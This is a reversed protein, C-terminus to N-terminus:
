LNSNKKNKMTCHIDKTKTVNRTVDLTDTEYGLDVKAQYEKYTATLIQGIKTAKGITIVLVGEALPDLTGTHGNKKIGLKKSIINVVDRSTMDKEKNIV